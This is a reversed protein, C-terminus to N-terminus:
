RGDRIARLIKASDWSKGSSSLRKRIKDTQKRLEKARDKQRGRLAALAGAILQNM